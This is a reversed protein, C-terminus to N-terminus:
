TVFHLLHTTHYVGVGEEGGGGVSEGGDRRWGCEGVRGGGGM